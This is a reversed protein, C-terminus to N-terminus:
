ELFLVNRGLMTLDGFFNSLIGSFFLPAFFLNSGFHKTVIVDCVNYKETMMSSFTGRPLLLSAELWMKVFVQGCRKEM